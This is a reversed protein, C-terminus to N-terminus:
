PEVLKEHPPIVSWSWETGCRRCRMTSIVGGMDYRETSESIWDHSALIRLVDTVSAARELDIPLCSTM